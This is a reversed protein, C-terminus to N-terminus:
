KRSRKGEIHNHFEEQRKELTFAICFYINRAFLSSCSTFCQTRGEFALERLVGFEREAIKRKKLDTSIHTSLQLHCMLNQPLISPTKVHIRNLTKKNKNKVKKMELALSTVIVM